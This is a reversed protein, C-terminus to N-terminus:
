KGAPERSQIELNQQERNCEELHLEFSGGGQLTRLREAKFEDESCRMIPSSPGDLDLDIQCFCEGREEMSLKLGANEAFRCERM